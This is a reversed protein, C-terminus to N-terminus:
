HNSEKEGSIYLYNSRSETLDGLLGNRRKGSSMLLKSQIKDGDASPCLNPELLLYTLPLFLHTSLM